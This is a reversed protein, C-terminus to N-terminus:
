ISGVIEGWQNEVNAIVECDCYGGYEGLWTIMAEKPLKREELYDLTNTLTHDCGNIELQENTYDFLAKLDAKSIPMRAEAQAQQAKRIGRLVEKRKQREEKITM